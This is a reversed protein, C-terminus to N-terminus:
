KRLALIAQGFHYALHATRGLLSAYRNRHPERLFEEPSVAQHRQLWDSPSLQQFQEWLAVDLEIWIERLEPGRLIKAIARDPNKVFMRELEPFRRPGFGFLPLIADNSATLHGWIYIIRNRTPAVQLELEENTLSGFFKGARDVNSRWSRLASDVFTQEATM